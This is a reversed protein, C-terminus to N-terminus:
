GELDPFTTQQVLSDAIQNILSTGAKSAEVAPFLRALFARKSESQDWTALFSHTIGARRLYAWLAQRRWYSKLLADSVLEIYHPPLRDAM